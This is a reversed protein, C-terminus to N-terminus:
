RNIRRNRSVRCDSDRWRNSRETIVGNNVLKRGFSVWRPGQAESIAIEWCRSGFDAIKGACVSCLGGKIHFRRMTQRLTTNYPRPGPKGPAALKIVRWDPPPPHSEPTPRRSHDVVRVKSNLGNEETRGAEGGSKMGDVRDPLTIREFCGPRHKEFKKRCTVRKLNRKDPHPDKKERAHM